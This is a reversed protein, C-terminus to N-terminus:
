MMPPALKLLPQNSEMRMVGIKIQCDKFTGVQTLWIVPINPIAFRESNVDGICYTRISSATYRSTDSSQGLAVDLLLFVLASM